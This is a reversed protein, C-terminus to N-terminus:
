GIGFRAKLRGGSAGAGAGSGAGVLEDAGTASSSETRDALEDDFEDLEDDADTFDDLDDRLPAGLERTLEDGEASANDGEAHQGGDDEGTGAPIREPIATWADPQAASAASREARKVLTIVRTLDPGVAFADIDVSERKGGEKTEYSRVSLRGWVIAAQGKKLSAAANEGLGRWCTVNAYTTGVDRWQSSSRDFRRRTSAIRFSAVVQGDPLTHIRPDAVLNGVLTVQTDYM